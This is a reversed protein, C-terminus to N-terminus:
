IKPYHSVSGPFKKKKEDNLMLNPREIIRQFAEALPIIVEESAGQLIGHVFDAAPLWVKVIGFDRHIQTLLVNRPGERVISNFRKAIHELEELQNEMM